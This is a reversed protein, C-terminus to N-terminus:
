QLFGDFAKFTCRRPPLSTANFTGAEIPAARGRVHLLVADNRQAAFTPQLDPQVTAM